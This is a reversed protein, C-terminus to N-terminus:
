VHLVFALLGHRQSRRQLQAILGGNARLPQEHAGADAGAILKFRTAEDAAMVIEFPRVQLIVEQRDGDVVVPGVGDLHMAKLHM